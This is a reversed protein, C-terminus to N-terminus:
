DCSWRNTRLVVLNERLNKTHIRLQLAKTTNPCFFLGAEKLLAIVENTPRENVHHNGPQGPKAWTIIVGLRTMAAINKVVVDESIKPIHELVEVCTTFDYRKWYVSGTVEQSLDMYHVHGRTITAIGATADYSTVNVGAKRWHAGYLGSSAGLEAVLCHRDCVTLLWEAVADAFDHFFNKRRYHLYGEASDAFACFAGNSSVVRGRAWRGHQKREGKNDRLTAQVRALMCDLEGQRRQLDVISSTLVRGLENSPIGVDNSQRHRGRDLDDGAATASLLIWVLIVIFNLAGDDPARGRRPGSRPIKCM